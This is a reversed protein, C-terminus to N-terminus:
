SGSGGGDPGDIAFSIGDPLKAVGHFGRVGQWAPDSDQVQFAGYLETWQPTANEFAFGVHPPQGKDVSGGGLSDLIVTGDPRTARIRGSQPEVRLTVDSLAVEVPPASCGAALALLLPALRM